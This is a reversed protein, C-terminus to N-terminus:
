KPKKGRKFIQVIWPISEIVFLSAIGYRSLIRWGAEDPSYTGKVTAMLLALYFAGLGIRGLGDSFAVLSHNRIAYYFKGFAAIIIVILVLGPGPDPLNLM